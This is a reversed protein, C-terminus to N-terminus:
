LAHTWHNEIEGKEKRLTSHAHAHSLKKGKQPVKEPWRRKGQMNHQSTSSKQRTKSKFKRPPAKGTKNKIQIPLLSRKKDHKESKSLSCHAKETKNEIQFPLLSSKGRQKTLSTQSHRPFPTWPPRLRNRGAKSAKGKQAVGSEPCEVRALFLGPKRSKPLTQTGHIDDDPRILPVITRCSYCHAKLPRNGSAVTYFIGM